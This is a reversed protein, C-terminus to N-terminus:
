RGPRDGRHLAACGVPRRLACAPPCRMTTWISSTACRGWGAALQALVPAFTGDIFLMPLAATKPSLAIEPPALRTNLPVTIGGAAPVAFLYEFYRDSNLALIAARDGKALGCRRLGGALRAIRDETEALHPPPTPPLHDLSRQTQNAGRAAVGPDSADTGEVQQRGANGRRRGAPASRKKQRCSLLIRWAQETRPTRKISPEPPDPQLGDVGCAGRNRRRPLKTAAPTSGSADNGPLRPDGCNM